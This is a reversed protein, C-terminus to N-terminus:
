EESEEKMGTLGFISRTCEKRERKYSGLFAAAESLAIRKEEISDMVRMLYLSSNCHEFPIDTPHQPDCRLSSMALLAAIKEMEALNKTEGILAIIGGARGKELEAAAEKLSLQARTKRTYGPEEALQAVDGGALLLELLTHPSMADRDGNAELSAAANSIPTGILAKNSAHLSQSLLEAGTAKLLELLDTGDRVQRCIVQFTMEPHGSRIADSLRVKEREGMEGDNDIAKLPDLKESLIFKRATMYDSSVGECSLAAIAVGSGKSLMEVDNGAICRVANWISFSLSGTSHRRVAESRIMSLLLENEGREAIEQAIGMARSWIERNFAEVLEFQLQSLTLSGGSARHVAEKRGYFSLLGVTQLLPLWTERGHLLPSLHRAAHVGRVAAFTSEASYDVEGLVTRVILEQNKRFGFQSFAAAAIGPVDGSGTALIRSYQREDIEEFNM